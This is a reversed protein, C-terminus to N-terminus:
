LSSLKQDAPKKKLDHEEVTLGRDLMRLVKAKINEFSDYAVVIIELQRRGKIRKGDLAFQVREWFSEAIPLAANQDNDWVAFFVYYPINSRPSRFEYTRLTMNFGDREWTLPEDEGVFDLGAAPLCVEPNHVGAFSSIMGEGWIFFFAYWSENDEKWYTQVGESYRLIAKTADPIAVFEINPHVRDWAVDVLYIVDVEPEQAYYWVFTFVPGMLLCLYLATMAAPKFVYIDGREEGSTDGELTEEPPITFKKIILAMLLILLFGSVTTVYGATDHWEDMLSRGGEYAQITLFLTRCLNLFVAMPIGLFLLVLRWGWLFRFLEGLFYAAMISSQLSRVGSCAEEVGVQEGNALTITNGDRVAIIGSLNLVEVVVAAVMQMLNQVLPQEIITPWPIAFLLMVIAPAFHWMWVRGGWVSLMAATILALLGGQAWYLLRWDPNAEFVVHHPILLLVCIITIVYEKTGSGSIPQSPSPREEWRLFILYAAIFPVLYGYHYQANLKWELELMRFFDLWLLLLLFLNVWVHTNPTTGKQRILNM